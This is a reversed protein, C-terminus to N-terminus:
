RRGGACGTQGEFRLGVQGRSKARVVRVGLTMAGCGVVKGGNKIEVFRVLAVCHGRGGWRRASERLKSGAGSIARMEDAGCRSVLWLLLLLLLLM